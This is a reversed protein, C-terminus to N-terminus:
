TLRPTKKVALNHRAFFAHIIESEVFVNQKKLNRSLEEDSLSPQKIKEILIAVAECDTPMRVTGGM